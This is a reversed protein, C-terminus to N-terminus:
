QKISCMNRIRQRSTLPDIYPAIFTDVYASVRTFIHPGLRTGCVRPGASVIGHLSWQGNAFHVVPSGSDGGCTSGYQHGGCFAQPIIRHRFRRCEQHSIASVMVQKLEQASRGGGVEGWGTVYLKSGTTLQEGQNPLCVPQITRTMNVKRKLKIIAIDPAEGPAKSRHWAPHVCMEKVPAHVESAGSQWRHHSGLYVTFTSPSLNWVCHAATLVHQDSILTGGCIHRGAYVQAQWPWSGPVAVSGGYIRDEVDLAPKIAPNGCQDKQLAWAPVALLVVILGLMTAVATRRLYCTLEVRCHCTLYLPAMQM